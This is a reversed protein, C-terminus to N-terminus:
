KSFYVWSETAVNERAKQLAPLSTKLTNYTGYTVLYFDWPGKVIKGEYGLKKIKQSYNQAFKENKFSGVVVLYVNSDNNKGSTVDKQLENIKQQYSNKLQALEKAYRISDEQLQKQLEDNKKMILSIQDENPSKGFWRNIKKCSATFILAFLSILIIIKKM